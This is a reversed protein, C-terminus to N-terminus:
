RPTLARVIPARTGFLLGRSAANISETGGDTREGAAEHIHGFVHLRPRREAVRDRLVECGVHMGLFTRDLVGMPPGHTILLDLDQPIRDYHEAMGAGRPRNWAMNRFAPTVPSGHIRLGELEITEDILHVLRHNRVLEAMDAPARESFHDHNGSVFVKHTAPAAAFWALFDETESRGGRRTYDGAHVLLDCPPIALEGHHGHTDSLFVIRAM